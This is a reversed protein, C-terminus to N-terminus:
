YEQILLPSEINGNHDGGAGSYGLRRGSTCVAETFGILPLAYPARTYVLCDLAMINAFCTMIILLITTANMCM